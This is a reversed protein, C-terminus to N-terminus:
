RRAKRGFERAFLLFDPFNVRGDQNLDFLRNYGIDGVRRGFVGAFRLFDPFGVQGDGDFDGILRVIVTMSISVEEMTGIITTRGGDLGKVEGSASVGAVDAQASMWTVLGTVDRKTADTFEGMARLVFTEGVTITTETPAVTLSVVLAPTVTLTVSGNVGGQTATITTTGSTVGTALGSASVTAVSTTSSTWMVSGTLDRTAGNSFGGVATFQQTRGAVLNVGAPSVTISTLVAPADGANGPFTLANLEELNTFGDGDSDLSEIATFAGLTANPDFFDASPDLLGSTRPLHSEVAAGYANRSGGGGPNVHCVGCTNLRTGSLNYKAVLRDFRWSRAEVDGIMLCTVIVDLVAALVIHWVGKQSFTRYWTRLTSM